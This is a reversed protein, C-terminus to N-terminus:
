TDVKQAVIKISNIKHGEMDQVIFDFDRGDSTKYSVKEYKVPIKGFLDFVFGGLSDFEAAELDIGTKEALDQLNVRAECLWVGEGLKVIDEQEKDFEDQIDGIIEELIDEMCVIGATGGYEDVVV